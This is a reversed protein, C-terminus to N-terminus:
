CKAKQTYLARRPFWNYIITSTLTNFYLKVYMCVYMYKGLGRHEQKQLVQIGTLVKEQVSSTKLRM